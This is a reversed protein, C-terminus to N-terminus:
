SYKIKLYIKIVIRKTYTLMYCLWQFPMLWKDYRNAVLNVWIGANRLRQSGINSKTRSVVIIGADVYEPLESPFKRVYRWPYSIFQISQSLLHSPSIIHLMTDNLESRVCVIINAKKTVSQIGITMDDNYSEILIRDWLNTGKILDQLRQVFAAAEFRQFLGFLDLMVMMDEYKRLLHIIDELCLPTLGSTSISFLKQGIFWDKTCTNPIDFIELRRLDKKNLYHAVAVYDEDATKAMDIEFIRIGKAYWYEMAERTNTQRLGKYAGNGHMAYSFSGKLQHVSIM